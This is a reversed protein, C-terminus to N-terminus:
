YSLKKLENKKFEKLERIITEVIISDKKHREVIKICHNIYSTAIDKSM